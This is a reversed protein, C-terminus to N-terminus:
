TTTKLEPWHDAWDHPRLEQRTVKGATAQEIAVCRKPPIPRKGSAWDSIDSSHGSIVRALQTLAGYGQTSLYDQLKM